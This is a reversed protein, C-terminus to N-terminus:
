SPEVIPATEKRCPCLVHWRHGKEGVGHSPSTVILAAVGAEALRQAADAPNIEGDDYDGEIGTIAEHNDNCRFSRGSPSKKTTRGFRGLKIHPLNAKSNAKTVVAQDALDCLSCTNSKMRMARQDEFWTVQVKAVLAECNGLLIPLDPNTHVSYTQEPM